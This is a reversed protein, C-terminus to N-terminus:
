EPGHWHGNQDRWLPIFQRDNHLIILSESLGCTQKNKLLQVIENFGLESAMDLATDGERNKAGIDADHKLLMEVVAERRRVVAQMLPTTGYVFEQKNIVAGAQILFEITAPAARSVALDILTRGKEDTANLASLSNKLMRLLRTKDNDIIARELENRM